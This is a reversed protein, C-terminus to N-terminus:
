GVTPVGIPHRRQERNPRTHRHVLRGRLQLKVLKHVYARRAKYDDFSEGKWRAADLVNRM